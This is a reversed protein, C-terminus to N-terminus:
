TEHDIDDKAVVFEDSVFPVRKIGIINITRAPNLSGNMIGPLVQVIDIKQVIMSLHILLFVFYIQIYKCM